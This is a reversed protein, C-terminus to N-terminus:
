VPADAAGVLGLFEEQSGVTPVVQDLGTVRMYRATREDPAFMAFVGPALASRHEKVCRVLAGTATSDFYSVASFDLGVHRPGDGLVELVYKRWMPTTYVDLEGVTRVVVVGEGVTEHTVRVEM